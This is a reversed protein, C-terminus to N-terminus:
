ESKFLKSLFEVEWSNSFQVFQNKGESNPYDFIIEKLVGNNHFRFSLVRDRESENIELYVLKGKDFDMTFEGISTEVKQKFVRGGSYSAASKSVFVSDLVLELIESKLSLEVYMFMSYDEYFSYLTKEKDILISHHDLNITIKDGENVITEENTLKSSDEIYRVQGILSVSFFLSCLLLLQSVKIKVM